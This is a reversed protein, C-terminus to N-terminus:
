SITVTYSGNNTESVTWVITKVQNEIYQFLHEYNPTKTTSVQACLYNKINVNIKTTADNTVSTISSFRPTGPTLQAAWYDSIAKAMNAATGACSNSTGIFSLLAPLSVMVVSTFSFTGANSNNDYHLKFDDIWKTGPAKPYPVQNPNDFQTDTKLATYANTMNLSVTIFNLSM